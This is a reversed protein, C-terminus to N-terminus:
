SCSDVQMKLLLYDKEKNRLFFVNKKFPPEGMSILLFWRATIKHRARLVHILRCCRAHAVTIILTEASLSGNTKIVKFGQSGHLNTKSMTFKYLWTTSAIYATCWLNPWIRICGDVPCVNEREHDTGFLCLKEHQGKPITLIVKYMWPM